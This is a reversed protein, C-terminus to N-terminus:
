RHEERLQVVQKRVWRGVPVTKELQSNNCYPDVRQQDSQKGKNTNISNLWIILEKFTRFTLGSM